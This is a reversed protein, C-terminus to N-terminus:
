AHICECVPQFLISGAALWQCLCLFVFGIILCIVPGVQSFGVFIVRVFKVEFRPLYVNFFQMFVANLRGSKLM